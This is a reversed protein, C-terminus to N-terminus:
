TYLMLVAAVVKDKTKNEQGVMYYEDNTNGAHTNHKDYRTRYCSIASVARGGEKSCYLTSYAYSIVVVATDDTQCRLAQMERPHLIPVSAPHAPQLRTSIVTVHSFVCLMRAQPLSKRVFDTM